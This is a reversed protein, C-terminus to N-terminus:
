RISGRHDDLIRAYADAWKRGVAAFSLTADFHGRVREPSTRNTAADVLAEALRQSDGPPWLRGVRGDGTLARFAPIDTVVPTAGCALAELLAYGCSESRSGSVFLDTARMLAEVQAHAVQGLLHVRGALQPHAQIRDQVEELLPASGFACWLQLRPLQSAARAIGDIVTLPDKGRALHGVWLVCPDGHIGTESRARARNGPMFRSSSEPVAFVRTGPGLVGAGIFPLAQDSATFAVAATAAHWRRWQLRRWWRPPHDAHDQCLIPLQPMRRSVAFADAAFALGHVHLLDAGIDALVQAFRRSREPAGKLGAVDVFHYDIGNRVIRDQRRAAQLVSVRVGSSATIEAIDELSHWEDLVDAHTRGEPVPLFNAQAVHL